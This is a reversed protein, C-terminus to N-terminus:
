AAEARRKLAANMAEFGRRTPPELTKWFFPVLIGSFEERHILHCHGNDVDSLQFIHEGDFLGPLPLRGFWRLERNENVRTVKPKFTMAKGDPPDIRFRLRGGEQVTGEIEPIFPNWERYRDLDLLIAWVHKSPAHIRVETKLEKM